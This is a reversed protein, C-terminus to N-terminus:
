PFCLAVQFFEQVSIPHLHLKNIHNCWSFISDASHFSCLVSRFIPPSGTTWITCALWHPHPSASRILLSTDLTHSSRTRTSRTPSACVIGTDLSRAVNLRSAGCQEYPPSRRQPWTTRWLSRTKCVVVKNRCDHVYSSQFEASM